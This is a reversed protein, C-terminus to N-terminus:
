KRTYTRDTRGPLLLKPILFHQQSLISPRLLSGVARQNAEKTVKREFFSFNVTGGKAFPNLVEGYSFFRKRGRQCLFFLFV